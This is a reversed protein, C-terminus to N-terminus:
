KNIPLLSLKLFDIHHWMGGRLVQADCNPCGKYYGKCKDKGYGKELYKVAQQFVRLEKQLRQKENM